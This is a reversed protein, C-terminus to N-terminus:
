KRGWLKEVSVKIEECKKWVVQIDRKLIEIETQQATYKDELARIVILAQKHHDIMETSKGTLDKLTHNIKARWETEDKISNTFKQLHYWVVGASSLVTLITIINSLDIDV